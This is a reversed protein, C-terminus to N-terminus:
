KAVMSWLGWALVATDAWGAVSWLRFARRLADQEGARAFRLIKFQLPLLAALWVATSLGLAAIGQVLWPTSWAIGRTLVLQIGAITLLAGGGLTLWLDAWLIAEAAYVSVAPQRRAMAWHSWLGTAIVNGLLLVAGLVHLFKFIM